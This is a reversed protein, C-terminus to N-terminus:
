ADLRGVVPAACFRMGLSSLLAKGRLTLDTLFVFQDRGEIPYAKLRYHTGWPEEAAVVLVPRDLHVYPSSCAVDRLAETVAAGDHEPHLYFDAVCMLEQQGSNANFIPSTWMKLHPIAVRTDDPTLIEVTRLNLGQVEGYTDDIRVWDGPRYPREYLAVVGAILSSVYDKFAFGLAVAMAGVTALLNEATPEIFLPTIFVVASVLIVLRLVPEWPLIWFRFRDPLFSVVKPVLFKLVSLLALVVALALVAQVWDIEGWDRFLRASESLQTSSGSM